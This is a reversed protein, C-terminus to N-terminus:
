SAGADEFSPGAFGLPISAAIRLREADIVDVAAATRINGTGTGAGIAGTLTVLVLERGSRTM